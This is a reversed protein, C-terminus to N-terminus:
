EASMKETESVRRTGNGDDMYRNRAVAFMKGLANRAEWHRRSIHSRAEEITMAGGQALNRDCEHAVKCFSALDNPNVVGERLMGVIALLADTMAEDSATGSNHLWDILTATYARAEVRGLGERELEDISVRVAGYSIDEGACAPTAVFAVAATFLFRVM